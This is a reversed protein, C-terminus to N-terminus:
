TDISHEDVSSDRKIKEGKKKLEVDYCSANGSDASHIRFKKYLVQRRCSSRTRVASHVTM